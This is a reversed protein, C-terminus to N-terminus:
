LGYTRRLHREHADELLRIVYHEYCREGDRTRTWQWFSGTFGESQGHEYDEAAEKSETWSEWLFDEQEETFPGM